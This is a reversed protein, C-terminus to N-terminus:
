NCQLVTDRCRFISFGTNKVSVLRSVDIRMLIESVLLACLGDDAVHRVCHSFNASFCLQGCDDFIKDSSMVPPFCFIKYRKFFSCGPSSGSSSTNLSMRAGDREGFFLWNVIM